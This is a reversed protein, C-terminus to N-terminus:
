CKYQIITFCVITNSVCSVSGCYKDFFFIWLSRAVLLSYDNQISQYSFIYLVTQLSFLIKKQLEFWGPALARACIASASVNASGIVIVSISAIVTEGHGKFLM